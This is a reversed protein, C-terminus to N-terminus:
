YCNICCSFYGAHDEWDFEEPILFETRIEEAFESIDNYAATFVEPQKKAHIVLMNADGERGSLMRYLRGETEEDYYWVEHDEKEFSCIEVFSYVDGEEYGERSMREKIVPDSMQLNIFDEVEEGTFILGFGHASYMEM